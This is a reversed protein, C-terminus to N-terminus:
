RANIEKEIASLADIKNQLEARTSEKEAQLQKVKDAFLLWQEVLLALDEDMQLEAMNEQYHTLLADPEQVVGCTLAIFRAMAPANEIGAAKIKDTLGALARERRALRDAIVADTLEEDATSKQAECYARRAALVAASSAPIRKEVVRSVTKTKVKSNTPAPCEEVSEGGTRLAIPQCASLVVLLWVLM